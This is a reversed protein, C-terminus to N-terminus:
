YNVIAGGGRALPLRAGETHFRHGCAEGLSAGTILAIKNDLRGM